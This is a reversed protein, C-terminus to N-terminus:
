ACQGRVLVNDDTIVQAEINRHPRTPSPPQGPQPKPRRGPPLPSPSFGKVLLWVALVIEQIAIPLILLTYGTVANNRFLALVCATLILLLGAM